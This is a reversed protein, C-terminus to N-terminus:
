CTGALEDLARSALAAILGEKNEFRNYVGMPAVGAERAVARLLAASVQDSATRRRPEDPAITPRRPPRPM